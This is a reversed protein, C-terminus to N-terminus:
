LVAGENIVKEWDICPSLFESEMHSAYGPISSVLSAGRESLACFKEHDRSILVNESYKRHIEYDRKLTALRMAYTNTTSPVSRWHCSDTHFVRSTLSKYEEFVYKDRHDYLTAYDIPLTFAELLAKPWGERHVYDDEIFYLITNPHLKRSLAYKLLQLFAGAETGESFSVVPFPSEKTFHDCGHKTDLLITLNFSPDITQVLNQFCGEYSFYSPRKKHKSVDSFVASRLFVEVKAKKKFSFM